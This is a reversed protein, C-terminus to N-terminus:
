ATASVPAWSRVPARTPTAPTAATRTGPRVSRHQGTSTRAWSRGDTAPDVWLAVSRSAALAKTPDSRRPIWEWEQCDRFFMRSTTLHHVKTRSAIPTGARTGLANARWIYDGVRMRDVAAVWEACIGRDWQGPETIDTHEAALWRGAKAMICRVISRVRPTLTSTAHWREVWRAWQPDVGDLEEMHYSGFRVPPDCHGAAAAARQLGFLARRHHTTVLSPHSRLRAFAETTLDTMLPSRNLLLFQCFAGPLPQGTGDHGRYGWSGLLSAVEALTETVTDPGFVLGALYSRDFMGIQHFDDFGGLLYALGIVFPRVTTAAPWAVSARFATADVGLVERWDAPTWGWWSREARACHALVLATTDAGARIHLPSGSHHLV